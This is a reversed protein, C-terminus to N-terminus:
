VSRHDPLCVFRRCRCPPGREASKVMGGIARVSLPDGCAPRM